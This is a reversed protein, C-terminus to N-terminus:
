QKHNLHKLKSVTEEDDFIELVKDISEVAKKGIMDHLIYSGDQSVFRINKADYDPEADFETAKKLAKKYTSGAKKEDGTKLYVYALIALSASVNKDIISTEKSRRISEMFDIGWLLVDEAEKYQGKSCHVSTFGYIIETINRFSQLVTMSLYYAAEDYKKSYASLSYGIIDNFAGEKNHKKLLEVGEDAKGSMIKAQSMLNYVTMDSVGPISNQDILLLAREFLEYAHVAYKKELYAGSMILNITASLYVVMFNNPYKVLAKEAEDIGAIDTNHIYETLREITAGVSNDKMEYGLLVDVSSDFFDAIEMILKLEPFCIGAEWKYVAGVTVGLVEALQEQTLKKEKRLRKINEALKMEM